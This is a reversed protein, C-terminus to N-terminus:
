GGTRPRGGSKNWNVVTAIADKSAVTLEPYRENLFSIVRQKPTKGTTNKAHEWATVAIHLLEPYHESDADFYPATDASEGEPLLQYKRAWDVWEIEFGRKEAWRVFYVPSQRQSPDHDGSDWKRKLIGLMTARLSLVKTKFQSTEDNAWLEVEALRRQLEDIDSQTSGDERAKRIMGKLESSSYKFDDEVPYDYLDSKDSFCTAHKIRPEKVEAGMFNEYSWDLIAADPDIGALIQLAETPVWTELELLNSLQSYMFPNKHQGAVSQLAVHLSVNMSLDRYEIERNVFRNLEAKEDPSLEFSLDPKESYKKESLEKIEKLCSNFRFVDRGFQM